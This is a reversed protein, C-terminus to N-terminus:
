AFKDAKLVQYRVSWVREIFNSGDTCVPWHMLVSANYEVRPLLGSRYEGNWRVPKVMAFRLTYLFSRESVVIM